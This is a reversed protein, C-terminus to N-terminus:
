LDNENKETKRRPPRNYTRSHKTASQGDKNRHQRKGNGRARTQKPKHAPLNPNPPKQTPNNSPPEADKRCDKGGNKRSSEKNPSTWRNRNRRQRRRHSTHPRPRSRLNNSRANWKTKNDRQREEPQTRAPPISPTTTSRSPRYKTRKPQKRNRQGAQQM